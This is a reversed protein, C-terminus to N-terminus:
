YGYHAYPAWIFPNTPDTEARLRMIAARLASASDHGAESLVTYFAEAALPAPGDKISWMTAVVHSYGIFQMAAALHLAEDPHEASGSATQCASLFALGGRREPQAALDTMTLEGDWLVFGRNVTGDHSDLPGAHCALHIWDHDAMGTTTAARSAAPGVLQQNGPGPPFYRTLFDLEAALYRLAPRDEDELDLTAVTLQRVHEPPAFGRARGLSTLTPIYSSVTRALVSEGDGHGNRLRPYHGAAHLPLSVLPGTPCWWIRPPAAQAPLCDALSDLVPAAIVDWLWGLIDLLERRDAERRPFPRGVLRVDRLLRSIGRAQDEAKHHDLGPLDVVRAREGEQTVIIAHCGFDSANVIVAAGGRTAAALDPYPTPELYREFGDLQRIRALTEDYDRAARARPDEQRPPHFGTVPPGGPYVPPLSIGPQEPAQSDLPANLIARAAELRAALEPAALPLDGYDARLNLAQSWLMSRGQELLEVALKPQGARVACCAADAALGAWRAAQQQRTVPTLGHWVVEPLIKVAASLGELADAMMSQRAATRGWYRAVELRSVPNATTVGAAARWSDFAARLDAPDRDLNYRTQLANGEYRLYRARDPHDPPVEAVAARATDLAEAADARDETEDALDDLCVSLSALYLARDGFDDPLAALAERCYRSAEEADALAHSDDFRVSYAMGLNMLFIPYHTNEPQSAQVADRM